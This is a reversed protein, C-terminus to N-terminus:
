KSGWMYVGTEPIYPVELGFREFIAEYGEPTMKVWMGRYPDGLWDTSNTEDFIIETPNYFKDASKVIVHAHGGFWRNTVESTLNLDLVYMSFPGITATDVVANPNKGVVNEPPPGKALVPAVLMAVAFLTMSMILIKKNM